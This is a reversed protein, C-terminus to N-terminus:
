KQLVGALLAVVDQSGKGKVFELVIPIFKAVMASDLKLQGFGSALGALDSLGQSKSGGVTGLLGGVLKGVGGAQPASSILDKADPVATAVKSFEGGLKEQALKFILGAGGKAQGEEVNLKSVLESILETM